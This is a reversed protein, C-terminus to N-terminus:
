RLSDENKSPNRTRSDMFPAAGDDNATEGLPRQGEQHAGGSKTKQLTAHEGPQLAATTDPCNGMLFCHQKSRTYTFDSLCGSCFAVLVFVRLFFLCDLFFLRSTFQRFRAVVALAAAYVAVIDWIIKVPYGCLVSGSM